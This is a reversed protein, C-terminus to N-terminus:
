TEFSICSLSAGFDEQLRDIYKPATKYLDSPTLRSACLLILYLKLIDFRKLTVKIYYMLTYSYFVQSLIMHRDNM